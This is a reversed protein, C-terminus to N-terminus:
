NWRQIRGTCNYRNNEYTDGKCKVNNYNYAQQDADIEDQHHVSQESM